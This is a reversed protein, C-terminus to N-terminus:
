KSACWQSIQDMAEFYVSQVHEADEFVLCDKWFSLPQDNFTKANDSIGINNNVSYSGMQGGFINGYGEESLLYNIYLCATYPYRANAAVQAYIPYMLGAFGEIGDNACVTLNTADVSRLKSFVFLGVSGPAGDAIDKAITSDKSVFTCNMLFKYIWEYSINQFEGTSVWDKGYYSKYAEALKAQWKESTMSILFNLSSKETMPNKFETGKFEPDAFQWVNKYTRADKNGGDNYIFVRNLYIAALPDQDEENIVSKYEEPVYNELWGSAIALNTLMFCDQLLYLDAGYVGNGVEQELLEYIESDTPNQHDFAIGTKETFTSEDVRSTNSYIKFKNDGIEEKAKALLEDWSMAAAEAIAKQVDTEAMASVPLLLTLCLLLATLLAATKKM